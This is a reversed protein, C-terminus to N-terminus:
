PSLAKLPTKLVGHHSSMPATLSDAKIDEKSKSDKEETKPRRPKRKETKM